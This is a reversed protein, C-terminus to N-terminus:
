LFRRIWVAFAELMARVVKRTAEDTLRGSADFKEPAHGVLVEPQMLVPSQTFVLSQRIQLQARITGWSGPTAGMLAVPKGRLASHSPPRSAWDIANKVLAPVGYNYEPTAILLAQSAELAAHLASVPEPLGQAEVDANYFPLPALDFREIEMGEPTLEMAAELLRRNLSGARLSGAWGLVRIGRARM